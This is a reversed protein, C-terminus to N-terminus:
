GNHRFVFLVSRVNFSPSSDSNPYEVVFKCIAILDASITFRFCQDTAMCKHSMVTVIILDDSRNQGDDSDSHEIQHSLANAPARSFGPSCTFVCLHRNWLQFAWYPSCLDSSPRVIFAIDYPLRVFVCMKFTYTQKKQRGTKLRHCKTSWLDATFIYDHFFSAVISHNKMM